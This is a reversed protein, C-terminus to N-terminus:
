DAYYIFDEQIILRNEKIIDFTKWIITMSKRSSFVLFNLYRQLDKTADDQQAIPVPLFNHTNTATKVCNYKCFSDFSHVVYKPM